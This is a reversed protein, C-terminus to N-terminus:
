LTVEFIGKNNSINNINYWTCILPPIINCKTWIPPAWIISTLMYSIYITFLKPNIILTILLKYNKKPILTIPSIWPLPAMYSTMTLFCNSGTLPLLNTQTIFYPLYGEKPDRVVDISFECSKNRSEFIWLGWLIWRITTGLKIFNRQPFCITFLASSNNVTGTPM